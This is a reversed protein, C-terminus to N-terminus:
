LCTLITTTLLRNLNDLKSFVHIFIDQNFETFNIRNIPRYSFTVKNVAPKPLDIDVCMTKHNSIYTDLM